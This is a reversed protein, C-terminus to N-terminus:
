KHDHEFHHKPYFVDRDKDIWQRLELDTIFRVGHKEIYSPTFNSIVLMQTDYESWVDPIEGYPEQGSHHFRDGPELSQWDSVKEPYPIGDNFIEDDYEEDINQIGNQSQLELEPLFFKVEGFYVVEDRVFLVDIERDNPGPLTCSHYSEIDNGRLYEHVKQEFEPAREEGNIRDILRRQPDPSQNHLLPFLQFQLIFALQDPYLVRTITRERTPRGPQLQIEETGTIKFFLPHADTNDPSMLIKDKVIPWEDGFVDEGCEDFTHERMAASRLDHEGAARLQRRVRPEEEIRDFFDRIDFITVTSPFNTSFIKQADPDLSTAFGLSTILDFWFDGFDYPTDIGDQDPRDFKRIAERTELFDERIDGWGGITSQMCRQMCFWYESKLFAYNGLFSTWDGYRLTIEVPVRFEQKVQDLTGILTIGKNLVDTVRDELEDREGPAHEIQNSFIEDEKYLRQILLAPYVFATYDLRNEQTFNFAAHNAQRVLEGIIQPATFEDLLTLINTANLVNDKLTHAKTRIEDRDAVPLGCGEPCYLYEEDPDYVLPTKCEPCPM